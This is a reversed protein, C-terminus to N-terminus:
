RGSRQRKSPCIRNRRPSSQIRRKKFATFPDKEEALILPRPGVLSMEGKLVNLLQPLEDLSTVRLIKGVKTIYHGPNKFQNTAVNNPTHKYMTRFKYVRFPEGGRGVREQRFIVSGSSELKIALACIIFIPSLVALLLFSLVIDLSRKVVFYAKQNESFMHLQDSNKVNGQKQYPSSQISGRQLAEKLAM